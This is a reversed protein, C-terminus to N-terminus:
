DLGCRVPLMRNRSREARRGRRVRLGSYLDNGREDQKGRVFPMEPIITQNERQRRTKYDKEFHELDPLYATIVFCLRNASDFAIVVHLPKGCVWGLILAGPYPSQESYDEVWAGSLLVQKVMERSIQREM